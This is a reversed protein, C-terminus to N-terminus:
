EKLLDQQYALLDPLSGSVGLGLGLGVGPPQRSTGGLISGFVSPPGSMVDLELSPTSCRKTQAVFVKHRADQALERSAKSITPTFSFERAASKGSETLDMETDIDAYRLTRPQSLRSGKLAAYRKRLAKVMEVTLSAAAVKLGPKGPLRDNETRVRYSEISHCGIVACLLAALSTKSPKPPCATGGIAQWIDHVLSSEVRQKTAFGLHQMAQIYADYAMPEQLAQIENEINRHRAAAYYRRSRSNLTPQATVGRDRLKSVERCSRAAPVRPEARSRPRLHWVSNSNSKPDPNLRSM